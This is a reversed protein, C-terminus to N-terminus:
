HAPTAVIGFPLTLLTASPPPPTHSSLLLNFVVYNPAKKGAVLLVENKYRLDSPVIAKKESNVAEYIVYIGTRLYAGGPAPALELIPCEGWIHDDSNKGFVDVIGDLLGTALSLYPVGKLVDLSKVEPVTELVKKVKGFADKLNVDIEFLDFRINLFESFLVNRFVGRYLFTPAFAGDKATFDTVFSVKASGKDINEPDETYVQLKFLGENNHTFDPLDDIYFKLLDLKARRHATQQPYQRAALTLSAASIVSYEKDAVPAADDGLDVFGLNVAREPGSM